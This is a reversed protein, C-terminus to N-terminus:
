AEPCSEFLGGTVKTKLRADLEVNFQLIKAAPTASCSSIHVRKPNLRVVENVVPTALQSTVEGTRYESPLILVQVPPPEGCGILLAACLLTRCLPM